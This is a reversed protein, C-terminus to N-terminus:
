VDTYTSYNCYCSFSCAFCLLLIFFLLWIPCVKFLDAKAIYKTEWPLLASCLFFADANSLHNCMVQPSLSVPTQIFSSIQPPSPPPPHVLVGGIMWENMWVYCVLTNTPGEKPRPGLVRLHWFPNLKIM